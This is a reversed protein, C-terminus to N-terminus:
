RTKRSDTQCQVAGKTPHAKKSQSRLVRADGSEEGSASDDDNPMLHPRIRLMNGMVTSDTATIVLIDDTKTVFLSLSNTDKGTGLYALRSNGGNNDTIQVAARGVCLEIQVGLADPQTDLANRM